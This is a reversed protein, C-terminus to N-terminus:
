YRFKIKNKELVWFIKLIKKEGEFFGYVRERVWLISALLILTVRLSLAGSLPLVRTRWSMLSDVLARWLPADRRQAMLQSSSMSMMSWSCLRGIDAADTLYSNQPPPTRKGGVCM